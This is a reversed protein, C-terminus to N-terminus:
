IGIKHIGCVTGVDSTAATDGRIHFNM